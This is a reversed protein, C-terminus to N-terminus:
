DEDVGGLQRPTVFRDLRGTDRQVQRWDGVAFEIVALGATPYKESLRGLAERNSGEVCTLELALNAMGPNHGVLMLSRVAMPTEAIVGLLEKWHAEYIRPELRMPPPPYGETALRFTEQTRRASSVLVLDPTLAEDRLYAGLLPAATRGREALPRDHDIIGEPWASKAHRLLLLRKM